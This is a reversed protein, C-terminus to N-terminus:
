DSKDALDDATPNFYVLAFKPDKWGFAKCLEMVSWKGSNGIWTAATHRTDHFTFGSLGARDRARRFIVDRTQPSVGFVRDADFGRAREFIRRAKKNIPVKRAAGTKSTYLEVTKGLYQPWTLATLEGARMGTRLAALFALAVAQTISKPPQGTHYDLSRLMAKIEPKTITRERHAPKPPNRVDKVPNHTIWKWERRAIEFVANLLATERLVTGPAVRALREDRWAAIHDTGVTAIKAASPLSTREFAALRTHEWRWGGRKPSVEEAYRRFADALTKTRHEKSGTSARLDTTRRAAWEQAERKTPFTESERHGAVFIQIRYAGTATKKPTAM